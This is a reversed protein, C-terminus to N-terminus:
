VPSSTSSLKNEVIYNNFNDVIYNNFKHGSYNRKLFLNSLKYKMHIRKDIIYLGISTIVLM